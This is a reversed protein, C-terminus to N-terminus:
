SEAIIRIAQADTGYVAFDLVIRGQDDTCVRVNNVNGDNTMPLTKLTSPQVVTDFFGKWSDDANVNDKYIKLPLSNGVCQAALITKIGFYSNYLYVRLMTAGNPLTNVISANPVNKRQISNYTYQSNSIGQPNNM